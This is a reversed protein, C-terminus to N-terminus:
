RRRSRRRADKQNDVSAGGIDNKSSGRKRSGRQGKRGSEGRKAAVTTPSPTVSVAKVAQERSLEAIHEVARNEGSAAKERAADEASVVPPPLPECPAVEALTEEKAVSGTSPHKSSQQQQEQKQRLLDNLAEVHVSKRASKPPLSTADNSTMQTIVSRIESITLQDAGGQELRQRYNIPACHSIFPVHQKPEKRKGKKKRKATKNNSAMTDHVEKKVIKAPTDGESELKVKPQCGGDCAYCTRGAMDWSSVKGGCRACKSQNYIYRREGRSAVDPDVDPDVTLISGRDYGRRLLSVSYKWVRDFSPRDLSVGVITPHVGALFLIEARYINGPGAFYSQDMLLQGISKKSKSIKAYLLEPDADSRLPDQGLSAKKTAYLSPDGHNVTMASLHTIFRDSMAASSKARKRNTSGSSSSPAIEELRLRTTPKVEPEEEMSANFVAWAGSMGFHVHVVLEENNTVNDGCHDFFAFLNKGVAEMRSLVRGDIAAAGDAFRGNPSSATFRRGVLQSRFRSALRHVSHGEVM